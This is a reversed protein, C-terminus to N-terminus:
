AVSIALKGLVGSGFHAYAEPIENVSYTRAVPVVIRGAAAEAALHDLVPQAPGAMVATVKANHGGLQEQSLHAASVIHGGDILVSALTPGDGALHVIAHVGDPSLEKVQTALDGRYDVAHHAGLGRVHETAKGPAATAIVTAGRAVALQVAFAGVGGTAGSVLVTKGALEGLADVAATAAAGALGLVGATALDLGAPVHAIGFQASTTLYEGYGGGDTIVPKATVGFVEDGVAFGTVDAGVETVTGAFDKGLVIPFNHDYRGNMAGAALMTDFSNVSSAQVRVKVEGPAPVPEPVDRVEPAVGFGELVAARM